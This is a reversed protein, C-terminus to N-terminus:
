RLPLRRAKEPLPNVEQLLIVDPQALSLQRAQLNFRIAQEEKSEGPGVSWARVELGHLVNYTLVTFREMPTSDPVPERLPQRDFHTCAAWFSCALVLAVSIHVRQKM